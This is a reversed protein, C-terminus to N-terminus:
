SEEEKSAQRLAEACLELREAIDRAQEPPPPRDEGEEEPDYHGIEHQRMLSTLDEHCDSLQRSVAVLVSSLETIENRPDFSAPDFSPSRSSGNGNESPTDSM